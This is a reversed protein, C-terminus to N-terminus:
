AASFRSSRPATGLMDAYAVRLRCGAKDSTFESLLRARARAAKERAADPEGAITIIASAIEEEIASGVFYAGDEGIAERLFGHRTSIIIMGSMMAENISNSHGEGPHVTPYCYIDHHMMAALVEGHSRVGLRKVLLSPPPSFSDAFAKFAADEQGIFALEIRLGSQAARACGGLLSKVGKGEYCYGVFLLRLTKGALRTPMAVPVESSSVFNPFFHCQVGFKDFLFKQYIKGEALVVSASRLIYAVGAKYLRNSTEYRTIFRGGKIDYVLKTKLMNCAFALFVERPLASNYIALAHVALPRRLLLAVIILWCDVVMRVPFIGLAGSYEGRVTHFLPELAFGEIELSSLYTQMNRTYGGTGGGVGRAISRGFRPGYLLVSSKPSARATM